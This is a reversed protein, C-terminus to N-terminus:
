YKYHFCVESVKLGIDDSEDPILILFSEWFLGPPPASVHLSTPLFLDTTRYLHLHVAQTWNPSRDGSHRFGQTWCGASWFWTYLYLIGLSRASQLHLCSSSTTRLKASLKLWRSVYSVRDWFVYMNSMQLFHIGSEKRMGKVPFNGSTPYLPTENRNKEKTILGFCFFSWM